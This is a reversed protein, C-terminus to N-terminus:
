IVKLKLEFEVILTKSIKKRAEYFILLKEVDGAYDLISKSAIVMKRFYRSFYHETLLIHERFFNNFANFLTLTRLLVEFTKREFPERESTERHEKEYKPLEESQFLHVQRWLIVYYWYVRKIFQFSFHVNAKLKMEFLLQNLAAKEKITFFVPEHYKEEYEKKFESYGRQIGEIFESYIPNFNDPISLGKDKTIVIGEPLFIAKVYTKGKKQMFDELPKIRLIFLFEFSDKELIRIRKSLPTKELSKILYPNFTILLDAQDRYDQHHFKSLSLIKIVAFRDYNEIIQEGYQPPLHKNLSLSKSPTIWTEAEKQIIKEIDFFEVAIEEKEGRKILYVDAKQSFYGALRNSTNFYLRAVEEDKKLTCRVFKRDFQPTKKNYSVLEKKTFGVPFYIISHDDSFDFCLKGVEPDIFDQVQDLPIDLHGIQNVEIQRGIIQLIQGENM